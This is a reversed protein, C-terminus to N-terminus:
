SIGGVAQWMLTSPLFLAKRAGFFSYDRQSIKPREAFLNAARALVGLSEEDYV